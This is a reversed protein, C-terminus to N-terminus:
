RASGFPLHIHIQPGKSAQLILAQIGSSIINSFDWLGVFIGVFSKSGSVLFLKTISNLDRVVVVYSGLPKDVCNCCQSLCKEWEQCSASSELHLLYAHLWTQRCLTWVLMRKEWLEKPTARFFKPRPFQSFPWNAIKTSLNTIGLGCALFMELFMGHEWDRWGWLMRLERLVSPVCQLGVRKRQYESM